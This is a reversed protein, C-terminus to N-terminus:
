GQGRSRGSARIATGTVLASLDSALFLAVGALDDSRDPGDREAGVADVRIANVRIRHEGLEAALTRTFRTVGGQFAAHVAHHSGTPGETASVNIVSGGRSRAVMGPIMARCCLLVQKLNTEYLGEWDQEGSELFPAASPVAPGASNVLVDVEGALDALRHVDGPRSIHAVVPIVKGGHAAIADATEALRAPDLDTIVVTAGHAGFAGAIGRGTAEGAGTVVTIKGALLPGPRLSM